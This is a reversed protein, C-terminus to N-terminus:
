RSAGEISSLLQSQSANAKAGRNAKQPPPAMAAVLEAPQAQVEPAHKKARKAQAAASAKVAKATKAEAAQTNTAAAKAFEIWFARV